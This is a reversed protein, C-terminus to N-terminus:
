DLDEGEPLLALQEDTLLTEPRAEEAVQLNALPCEEECCAGESAECTLAVAQGEKGKACCGGLSAKVEDASISSCPTGEFDDLAAVQKATCFSGCAKLKLPCSYKDKADPIFSVYNSLEPVASIALLASASLLLVSYLGGRVLRSLTSSKVPAAQDAGELLEMAPQEEPTGAPHLDDQHTM